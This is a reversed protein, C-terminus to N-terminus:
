QQEVGSQGANLTGHDDLNQVATRREARSAIPCPYGLLRALARVAGIQQRYIDELQRREDPTMTRQAALDM